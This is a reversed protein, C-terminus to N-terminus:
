SQEGDFLTQIETLSANRYDANVGLNLFALVTLLFLIRGSM